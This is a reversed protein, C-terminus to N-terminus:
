NSWSTDQQRQDTSACNKDILERDYLSTALLCFNFQACYCGTLQSTLSKTNIIPLTSPEIISRPERSM